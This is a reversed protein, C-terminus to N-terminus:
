RRDQDIPNESVVGDAPKVPLELTFVAGQGPGDSHFSLSGGLQQAANASSHLGIGSGDTKTTFGLRFIQERHEPAIGIGNDQVHIRVREPGAAEARITLRKDTRSSDRLAQRANSMLNVLIEIVKHRDIYLAPLEALERELSVHIQAWSSAQLEVAADILEHVFVMERIGLSHAHGHQAQIIRILHDISQQLSSVETGLYDRQQEFHATLARMFQVLQHGRPDDRLFTDIHGAHEELLGVARALHGIRLGEVHRQLMAVSVGTSNLINGTNHLVESAVVAMGAQRSVRVLEQHLRRMDAEAHKRATVDGSFVTVGVIGANTLIPHVTTERHPAEQGKPPPEEFTVPGAGALVRELHPQWLAYQAEPLIDGLADGPQPGSPGRAKSMAAFAHNCTMLRQDRDLSCIAATTSEFLAELQHENQETVLLADELASMGRRQMTEYVYGLLAVLGIGALAHALGVGSGFPTLFAFPLTAGAHHLYFSLVAQAMTLLTFILGHRPGMMYLSFLALLPPWPSLAITLGGTTSVMFFLVAFSWGLLLTAPLRVAGPRRFLHAAGLTVAVTAMCVGVVLWHGLVAKQIAALLAVAAIWLSLGLGVRARSRESATRTRRSRSSPGSKQVRDNM